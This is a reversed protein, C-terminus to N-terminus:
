EITHSLWKCVETKPNEPMEPVPKEDGAPMEM